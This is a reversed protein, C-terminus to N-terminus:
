RGGENADFLTGPRLNYVFRITSPQRKFIKSFSSYMKVSQSTIMLDIYNWSKLRLGSNNKSRRSCV